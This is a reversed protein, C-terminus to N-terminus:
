LNYKDMRCVGQEQNKYISEYCVDCLVVNCKKCYNIYNNCINNCFECINSIKDDNKTYNCNTIEM